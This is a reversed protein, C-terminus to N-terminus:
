NQDHYEDWKSGRSFQDSTGILSSSDYAIRNPPVAEGDEIPILVELMDLTEPLGHAHALARQDDKLKYSGSGKGAYKELPGQSFDMLGNFSEEEYLERFVKLPMASKWYQAANEEDSMQMDDGSSYRHATREAWRLDVVYATEPDVAIKLVEGKPTGNRLSDFAGVQDNTLQGFACSFLSVPIDAPRCSEILQNARKWQDSYDERGRSRKLGLTDIDPLAERKTMHYVVDCYKPDLGEFEAKDLRDYTKQLTDIM